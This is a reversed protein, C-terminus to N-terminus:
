HRGPSPVVVVQRRARQSVLLGLLIEIRTNTFRLLDRAESSGVGANRGLNVGGGSSQSLRVERREVAAAGDDAAAALDAPRAGEWQRAHAM